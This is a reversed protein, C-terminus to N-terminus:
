IIGIAKLDVLWAELLDMEQPPILGLSSIAQYCARMNDPINDAGFRLSLGQLAEIIRKNNLYGPLEDVFDKMLDHTNREQRVTPSHFTLHWDNQWICAQAIFSRWIDTMRFSCLAPLYLLPFAKIHWSTNQSNFPCWAHKSLILPKDNNFLYPLPSTLRYVADVDPDGDALGQQIPSECLMEELPTPHYAGSTKIAELPFGRPWISSEGGFYSYANVWGSTLLSRGKVLIDRQEWFVHMPENDDDTDIIWEAGKQMALLYGINKRAYHDTPCIDAFSFGLNNQSELNFFDCNALDIKRPGKRDGICIFGFNYESTGRSIAEMSPTANSISTIVIFHNNPNM